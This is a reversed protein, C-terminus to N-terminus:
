RTGEQNPAITAPPVLTRRRATFSVRDSYGIARAAEVVERHVSGAGDAAYVDSAPTVALGAERSMRLVAPAPYVEAAPKRLGTSSVDTATDTAAAAAMLNQYLDIPEEPPRLGRLKCRDAHALADVAGSAVLRAEPLRHDKARLVVDVYDEPSLAHQSAALARTQEVLRPDDEVVWYPGLVAAAEVCGGLHETFAPEDVGRSAAVDVYRDLYSVPYLGPRLDQPTSEDLRYDSM